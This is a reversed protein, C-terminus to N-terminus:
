FIFSSFPLFDVISFSFFYFTPPPFFLFFVKLFWIPLFFLLRFSPFLLFLSSKWLHCSLLISIRLSFFVTCYPPSYKDLWDRVRQRIRNPFWPMKDNLCSCRKECSIEDCKFEGSIGFAKEDTKDIEKWLWDKAM